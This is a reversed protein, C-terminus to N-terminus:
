FHANFFAKLEDAAVLEDEGEATIIVTDNQKVALAMVAFLRDLGVTEGDKTITLKSKYKSAQKVLLGAPRAHLGDPDTITYAFRTM